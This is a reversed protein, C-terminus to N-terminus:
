KEFAIAFTAALKNVRTEPLLIDLGEASQTFEVPGYGPM